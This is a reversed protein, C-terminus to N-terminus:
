HQHLEELAAAEAATPPPAPAVPREYGPGSGPVFLEEPDSRSFYDPPVFMMGVIVIFAVAMLLAALFYMAKLPDAGSAERGTQDDMAM